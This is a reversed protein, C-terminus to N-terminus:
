PKVASVVRNYLEVPATPVISVSEFGAEELVDWWVDTTTLIEGDERIFRPLLDLQLLMRELSAHMMYYRAKATLLEFVDLVREPSGPAGMVRCFQDANIFRGGHKLVRYIEAAARPLRAVEIHHLAFSSIVVDYSGSEFASLDEAAAVTFSMDPDAAFKERSEEVMNPAPDVCAIHAGPAAARCLATLRGTGCGLDLLRTTGPPILGVAAGLLARNSPDSDIVQDYGTSFGDWHTATEQLSM